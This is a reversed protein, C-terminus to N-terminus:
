EGGRYGCVPCKIQSSGSVNLFQKRRKYGWSISVDVKMIKTFEKDCKTCRITASVLHENGQTHILKFM